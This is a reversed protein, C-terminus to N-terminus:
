GNLNILTVRILNIAAEGVLAAKKNGRVLIVIRIYM